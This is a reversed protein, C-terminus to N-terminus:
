RKTEWGIQRHSNLTTGWLCGYSRFYPNNGLLFFWLCCRVWIPFLIAIYFTTYFTYGLVGSYFSRTPNIRMQAAAKLADLAYQTEQVFKQPLIGQTDKRWTRTCSCHESPLKQPMNQFPSCGPTGVHFSTVYNKLCHWFSNELFLHIRTLCISDFCVCRTWGHFDWTPIAACKKMYSQSTVNKGCAEWEGAFLM